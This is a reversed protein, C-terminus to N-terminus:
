KNFLSLWPPCKLVHLPFKEYGLTRVNTSYHIIQMWAVCPYARVASCVTGNYDHQFSSVITNTIGVVDIDMRSQKFFEMVSYLSSAPSNKGSTGTLEPSDFCARM